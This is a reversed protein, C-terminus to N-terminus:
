KESKAKQKKSTAEDAHNVVGNLFIGILRRDRKRQKIPIEILFDSIQHYPDSKIESIGTASQVDTWGLVDTWVVLVLGFGHWNSQSQAKM